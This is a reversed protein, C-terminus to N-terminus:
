FFNLGTQPDYSRKKIEFFAVEEDSVAEQNPDQKVGTIRGSNVTDSRGINVLAQIDQNRWGKQLLSKAIRKEESTLSGGAKRFWPRQKGSPPGSHRTLLSSGV